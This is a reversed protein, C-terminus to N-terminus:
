EKKKKKKGKRKKEKRKKEKRKKEKRKKEKRKKRTEKKKPWQKHQFHDHPSKWHSKTQSKVESYFWNKHKNATNLNQDELSCSKRLVLCFLHKGHEVLFWQTKKLFAKQLIFHFFHSFCVLVAPITSKLIYSLLNRSVTSFM